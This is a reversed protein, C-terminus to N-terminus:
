PRQEMIRQLDQKSLELTKTYSAKLEALYLPDAPGAFGKLGHPDHERTFLWNEEAFELPSTELKKLAGEFQEVNDAEIKRYLEWRERRYEISPVPWGKLKGPWKEHDPQYNSSVVDLKGDPMRLVWFEGPQGDSYEPVEANITEKIEVRKGNSPPKPYHTVHIQLKVGPAWVRPLLACCSIGGAGYPDILGSGGSIREPEEPDMLYFSFVDATHNVGHLNVGVYKEKRPFVYVAVSVVIVLVVFKSMFGM